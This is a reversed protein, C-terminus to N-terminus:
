DILVPPSHISPWFDLLDSIGVKIAFENTRHAASMLQRATDELWLYLALFQIHEWLFVYM